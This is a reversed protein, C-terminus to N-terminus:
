PSTHLCKQFLCSSLKNIHIYVNTIITFTNIIHICSSMQRCPHLYNHLLLFHKNLHIFVHHSKHLLMFLNISLYTSIKGHTHLTKNIHIYIYIYINININIYIFSSMSSCPHLSKYVLIFLNHTHTLANISLCSSLKHM